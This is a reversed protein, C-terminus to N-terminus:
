GPEAFGPTILICRRELDIGRVCDEIMPLSLGSDLELVDNAEYAQVDTVRGLQRGGEEVVVLGVLDAVYYEGEGPPGLAERPIELPAGREVHRDLRIV